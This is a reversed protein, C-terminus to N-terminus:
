CEECISYYDENSLYTNNKKVYENPHNQLDKIMDQIFCVQDYRIRLLPINNELCYKNKQQDAKVRKKYEPIGGFKGIPKFHQEGDFEVFLEEYLMNHRISFDYKRNIKKIYRQTKYIIHEAELYEKIREEGSSLLPDKDTIEHITPIVDDHEGNVLIPFIWKVTIDKRGEGTHYIAWHACRVHPRKTTGNGQITGRLIKDNQKKEYARITEGYRAGVDWKRIERYKNKIQLSPRYTQTSVENIDRDKSSLFTLLQLIFRRYKVLDGRFFENEFRDTRLADTYSDYDFFTIGNEVKFEKRKVWFVDPIADPCDRMRAAEKLNSTGNCNDVPLSIIRLSKDDVMKVNVFFGSYLFLDNKSSDVYFNNFPLHEILYPMIRLSETDVLAKSFDPDPEYVAKHFSWIKTLAAVSIKARMALMYEPAFYRGENIYEYKKRHNGTYEDYVWGEDGILDLLVDATCDLADKGCYYDALSEFREVYQLPLYAM